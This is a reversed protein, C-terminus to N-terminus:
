IASATGSPPREYRRPVTTASLGTGEVLNWGARQDEGDAHDDDDHVGHLLLMSRALQDVDPADKRPTM